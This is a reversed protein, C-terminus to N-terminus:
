TSRSIFDYDNLLEVIKHYCERVEKHNISKDKISDFAYDIDMKDVHTYQYVLLAYLLTELEEVKPVRITLGGFYECFNILNQKDLIYALESLGSYEPINRIKFLAFLLFSWIDREKLNSLEGKISM